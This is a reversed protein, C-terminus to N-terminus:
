GFKEAQYGPVNWYAHIPKSKVALPAASPARMEILSSTTQDNDDLVHQDPLLFMDGATVPGADLDVHDNTSDAGISQYIVHFRSMIILLFFLFGATLFHTIMMVFIGSIADRCLSQQIALDYAPYISSCSVTDVLAAM